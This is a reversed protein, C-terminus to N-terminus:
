SILLLESAVFGTGVPLLLNDFDGSPLTEILTATLAIILSLKLSGILRYTMFLVALFCALSGALTKGGTFPLSLSGVLKGVLSALSDGFALAYIAITAAQAPYLLLALM